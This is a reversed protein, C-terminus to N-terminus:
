RLPRGDGIATSKKIFDRRSAAATETPTDVSTPAVSTGPTDENM